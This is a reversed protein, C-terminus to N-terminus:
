LRLIRAIGHVNTFLWASTQGLTTPWTIQNALQPATIGHIGAILVVPIMSFFPILQLRKEM